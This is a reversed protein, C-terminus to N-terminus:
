RIFLSILSLVVLAGVGSLIILQFKDIKNLKEGITKELNAMSEKAEESAGQVNSSIEGVDGGLDGLRSLIKPAGIESLLKIAEQVAQGSEKMGEILSQLGDSVESLERGADKYSVSESQLEELAAVLQKLQEEANLFDQKPDSM